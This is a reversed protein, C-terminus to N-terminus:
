LVDLLHIEDTKREPPLNRYPLDNHFENQSQFPIYRIISIDNM